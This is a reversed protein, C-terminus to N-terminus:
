ADGQESKNICVCVATCWANAVHRELIDDAAYVFLLLTHLGAQQVVGDNSTKEQQEKQREGEKIKEGAIAPSPLFRRLFLGGPADTGPKVKRANM